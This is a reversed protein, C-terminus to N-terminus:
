KTSKESLFIDDILFTETKREHNLIFPTINVLFKKEAVIIEKIVIVAGCPVIGNNFDFTKTVIFTDNIKM